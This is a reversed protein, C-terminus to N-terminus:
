EWYKEKKHFMEFCEGICLPVDCQKCMISTEKRAAKGTTRKGKEACVRCKRQGTTRGSGPTSPIKHPFHNRGLLRGEKQPGPGTEQDQLGVSMVLSAAVAEMFQQLRLKHAHTTNYLICANVIALDFLHLFLKKWWKVQRRRYAYYALLQDSRDVGVKYKNYDLVAAPKQKRQRSREDTRMEAKHVTSLMHVDRVDKWKVALLHNRHRSIFEGRKLIKQFSQKPMGERNPMVTGVAKTGKEWLHDFVKPSSFYRDMYITYGKNQYKTSLRDVVNLASNLNEEALLDKGTYVEFACAYGSEAECLEYIKIGYKEPKGKIFVRFRVRGRFGCIGEDITLQELPIYQESFQKFLHDVIPRVKHLPDHGPNGRPVYSENNNLHLMTLIASFRDRSMHLSSAYHSDYIPTTSWYDRIRPKKVLSMHIIM